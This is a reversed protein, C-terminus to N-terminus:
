DDLEFSQKFRDYSLHAGEGLDHALTLIEGRDLDGMWTRIEAIADTVRMQCGDESANIAEVAENQLIKRALRYAIAKEYLADIM